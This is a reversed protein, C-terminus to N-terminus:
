LGRLGREMRGVPLFAWIGVLALFVHDENEGSWDGTRPASAIRLGVEVLLTWM